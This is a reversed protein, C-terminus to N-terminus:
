GGLEGLFGLIQCIKANRTATAWLISHPHAKFFTMNTRNHEGKVYDMLQMFNAAAHKCGESLFGAYSVNPLMSEPHVRKGTPVLSDSKAARMKKAWSLVGRSSRGGHGNARVRRL